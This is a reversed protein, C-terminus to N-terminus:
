IKSDRNINNPHLRIHIAEQVRRTYWHPDGEIFKVEDGLPYHGSKNAYESIASTQTHALLIDRDHEKILEHM